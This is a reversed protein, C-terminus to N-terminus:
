AWDPFATAISGLVKIPSPGPVRNLEFIVTFAVGCALGVGLAVWTLRRIQPMLEAARQVWCRRGALLGILMTLGLMAWWGFTSWLSLPNDYFTMVRTNEMVADIFSGNGYATTAPRSARPSPWM